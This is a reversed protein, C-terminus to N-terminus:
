SFHSARSPEPKSVKPVAELELQTDIVKHARQIATVRDRCTGAWEQQGRRVSWRWGEPTIAQVLAYGVGRHEM